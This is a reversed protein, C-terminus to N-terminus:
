YFSAVRRRSGEIHDNYFQGFFPLGFHFFPESLALCAFSIRSKSSDLTSFHGFHPKNKPLLSVSNLNSSYPSFSLQKLHFNM